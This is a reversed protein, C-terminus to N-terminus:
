HGCNHVTKIKIKFEQFIRNSDIGVGSEGSAEDFDMLLSTAAVTHSLIELSLSRPAFPVNKEMEVSQIRNHTVHKHHDM